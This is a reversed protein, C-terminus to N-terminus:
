VKKRIYKDRWRQIFSNCENFNYLWNTLSGAILFEDAYETCLTDKYLVISTDCIDEKDIATLGEDIDKNSRYNECTLFVQGKKRNYGLSMPTVKGKELCSPCTLPTVTLCKPCRLIASGFMYRPELDLTDERLEDRIHISKLGEIKKGYRTNSYTNVLLELNEDCLGCTGYPVTITRPQILDSDSYTKKLQEENYYHRNLTTTQRKRKINKKTGNNVEGSHIKRKAIVKYDRAKFLLYSIEKKINEITDNNVKNIIDELYINLVTYDVGKIVTDITNLESDAVGHSCNIYIFYYKKGTWITIDPIFTKGELAFMKDKYKELKLDINGRIPLLIKSNSEMILKKTYEVLIDYKTCNETNKIHSFHSYVGNRKVAKLMGDCIVCRYPIQRTVKSIHVLENDKMGLYLKVKSM